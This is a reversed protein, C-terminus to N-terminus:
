GFPRDDGHEGRFPVFGELHRRLKLTFEVLREGLGRASLRDRDGFHEFAKAGVSRNHEFDLDCRTRQSLKLPGCRPPGRVSRSGTTCDGSVEGCRRAQRGKLGADSTAAGGALVGFEPAQLEIPDAVVDVVVGAGTRHDHEGHPVGIAFAARLQLTVVGKQM